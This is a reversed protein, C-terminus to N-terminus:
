ELQLEGDSSESQQVSDQQQQPEQSKEKLKKLDSVSTVVPNESDEVDFWDEPKSMGDRLSQAINLLNQMQAPTISEIRRQIRSEILDKSIKFKSEFVDLMKKIGEKSTDINAKQTVHCQEVAAEIVDGPIIGLICARLRRAGNNAVLEYIDRPDTLKYGGNKTHRWHPVQFIKVQRTNTEVDWAFAEVTSAGDSQSLERIGFQINGWQQAIAEALRISPGAVETGGKGYVYLAKEALTQRSCANLIRDMASIQDRPFRKSIVMAAQVEQIARESEASAIANSSANGQQKGGFPNEIAAINNM